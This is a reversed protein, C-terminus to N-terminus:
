RWSGVGWGWRGVLAADARGVQLWVRAGQQLRQASEASLFPNLQLALEQGEPLALRLLDLPGHEPALGAARQVRFWLGPWGVAEPVTGLHTSLYDEAQQRLRTIM